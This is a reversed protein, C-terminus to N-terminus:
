INEFAERPSVHRGDPMLIVPKDTSFLYRFFEDNSVEENININATSAIMANVAGLHNGVNMAAEIQTGNNGLCAHRKIHMNPVCDDPHEDFRVGCATRHVFDLDYEAYMNVCFKEDIFIAKLFEMAEGMTWDYLSNYIYANSNTIVCEVEDKDFNTLPSTVAFFLETGMTKKIEINKSRILFDILETEEEQQLSNVGSLSISYDTISKRYSNIRSTLERIREYCEDIYNTIERRREDAFRSMYGGLSIRIIEDRFNFRKKTLKEALSLFITSSREKMAKLLEREEPNIPSEKFHWPIFRPLIGGLAHWTTIRLDHILVLTRREERNIYVKLHVDRDKFFLAIDEQNEWEEPPQINKFYGENSLDVFCIANTSFQDGISKLVEDFSPVSDFLEAGISLLGLKLWVDVEPNVRPQLLIEAVGQMSLDASANYAIVSPSWNTDINSKWGDYPSIISMQDRTIIRESFM